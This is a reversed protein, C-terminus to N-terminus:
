FHSTLPEYQSLFFDSFQDSDQLREHFDQYFPHHPNFPQMFLFLTSDTFFVYWVLLLINKLLTHHDSFWTFSVINKDLAWRLYTHKAGPGFNNDCSSSLLFVVFPCLIIYIRLTVTTLWAFLLNFKRYNMWIDFCHCNSSEEASRVIIILWYSRNTETKKETQSSLGLYLRSM